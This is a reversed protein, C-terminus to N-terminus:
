ADELDAVVNRFKSEHYEADKSPISESQVSSFASYMSEEIM